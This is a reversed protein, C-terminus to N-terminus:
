NVIALAQRLEIESVLINASSGRRSEQTPALHRGPPSLDSGQRAIYEIALNQRMQQLNAMSDVFELPSNRDIHRM